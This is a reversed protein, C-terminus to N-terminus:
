NKPQSFQTLRSIEIIVSTSFILRDKCLESCLKRVLDYKKVFSCLDGNKMYPLVVLPREGQEYVVGVLSLVNAHKFDIMLVGEALFNELDEFLM